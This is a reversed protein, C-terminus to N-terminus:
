ESKCFIWWSILLLLLYFHVILMVTCTTILWLLLTCKIMLLRYAHLYSWRCCKWYAERFIRSMGASFNSEICFLNCYIWTQHSWSFQSFFCKGMWSYAGLNVCGIQCVVYFIKQSIQGNWDIELHKWSQFDLRYIEMNELICSGHIVLIAVKKKLLVVILITDPCYIISYDGLYEM